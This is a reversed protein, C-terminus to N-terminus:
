FFWYAVGHLYCFQWFNLNRLTVFLIWVEGQKTVFCACSNCRPKTNTKHAICLSKLHAMLVYMSEERIQVWVFSLWQLLYSLSERVLNRARWCITLHRQLIDRYFLRQECFSVGKVSFRLRLSSFHYRLFMFCGDFKYRLKHVFHLLIRVFWVGKRPQFHVHMGNKRPM